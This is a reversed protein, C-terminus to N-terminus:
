HGKISQQEICLLLMTPWFNICRRNKRDMRKDSKLLSQWKISPCYFVLNVRASLWRSVGCLCDWRNFVLSRFFFDRCSRWGLDYFFKCMKKQNFVTRWPNSFVCVFFGISRIVRLLAYFLIIIVVSSRQETRGQRLAKVRAHKPSPSCSSASAVRHTITVTLKEQMWPIWVTACKGFRGFRKLSGRRAPLLLKFM